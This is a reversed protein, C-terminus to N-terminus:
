RQIRGSGDGGALKEVESVTMMNYDGEISHKLASAAVAFEVAERTSKGTRLSYSSAYLLCSQALAAQLIQFLLKGFQLILEAAHLCLPLVLLVCNALHLGQALRDRICM